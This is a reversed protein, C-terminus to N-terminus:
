PQQELAATIQAHLTEVANLYASEDPPNNAQLGLARVKSRFQRLAEDDHLKEFDGKLSAYARAARSNQKKPVPAVHGEASAAHAQESFLDWLIASSVGLLALVPLLLWLLSSRRKHAARAKTASPAPTKVAGRTPDSKFRAASPNSTRAIGLRAGPGPRKVVSTLGPDSVARIEELTKLSDSNPVEEFGELLVSPTAPGSGLRADREHAQLSISPNTLSQDFQEDRDAEARKVAAVSKKTPEFSLGTPRLSDTTEDSDYMSQQSTTSLASNLETKTENTASVPAPDLQKAQEKLMALMKREAAYEAAFADRMFRSAAESGAHPDLDNLILQLSARFAEATQWRQSPDVALARMVADSLSQPCMPEIDNLAAINPNAVSAMLENAPVDHFPSRGSILEYLCLGAAYLDSRRDARQHRAQEPSLYMFKGLVISPNTKANSLTSKALGFDIVKVDGEYSMLVNQPSVDCHVVKLEREDDGIKRHAYALADLVRTMVFLAFSLPISLQRDRM